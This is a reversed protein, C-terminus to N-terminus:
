RRRASKLIKKKYNKLGLVVAVVIVVILALAALGIIIYLTPIVWITREQTLTDGGAGYGVTMTVTYKGFSDMKELPVEWKRVSDPLISGAPVTNNIKASYVQKSNKTVFVAGFPEVQVGGKNELRVLATVNKGSTLRSKAKGDQLVNFEKLQMSEVYDGPVKLLILSSVSGSVAVQGETDKAPVFRVAGFYGGPQASEPVNITIHIEKTERPQLTVDGMEQMFRKLSHTPAYQDEDLVLNAEGNEGGAVFDNFIPHLTVKQDSINQISVLVDESEGREITADSRTPSIKLSNGAGNSSPANVSQAQALQGMVFITAAAVLLWSVSTIVKQKM